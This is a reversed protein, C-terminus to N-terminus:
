GPAFMQRRRRRMAAGVMAVGAILLAWTEPEPVASDALDDFTFDDLVAGASSGGLNQVDGGTSFVRLENILGPNFNVLTPGNANPGTVYLLYSATWVEAGNLLGTFVVQEGNRWSSSLQVSLAQFAESRSIVSTLGHIQTAIQEGSTRGAVFGCPAACEGDSRVNIWGPNTPHGNSWNLGGYSTFNGVSGSGPNFPLGEFTLVQVSAHATGQFAVMATVAGLLAKATRGM